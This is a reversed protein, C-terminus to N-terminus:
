KLDKLFAEIRDVGKAIQEKSIAYSLRIYGPFGFDTCPIVAVQYDELLISALNSVDGVQNGKYEKTFTERVDIFTYFAGKPEIINM